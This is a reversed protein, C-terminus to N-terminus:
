SEFTDENTIYFKGNTIHCIKGNGHFDSHMKTQLHQKEYKVM